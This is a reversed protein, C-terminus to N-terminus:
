YSKYLKALEGEIHARVDARQEPPLQPDAELRTLAAQYASIAAGAEGAAAHAGGLHDFARTSDPFVAAIARFVVLAAALDGGLMLEFAYQDHTDESGVPSAPDERLVARWMEVASDFHGAALEFLPLPTSAAARTARTLTRGAHSLELADDGQFALRLGSDTRVLVGPELAVLRVPANFPRVVFLGDAHATIAFPLGDESTFRGVLRAREAAALVVPAIPTDAGPWNLAAFVTREIEPFLRFGNDSNAMVVVGYGHDLSASADAQFGTDAGNHGFFAAANRELLFVGLASHSEPDVETTMLTAIEPSLKTSRHARARAIELFFMALDTPTTWLGAAAMEPYVFRKGPVVSGDRQHGAAARKLREPPLPQQFTSNQMGLPVLVQEDLIAPYPKGLADMLALQTISIGGGSYRFRSGPKLDVRVAPTNAPPSGDLVQLLTPVPTASASSPYGPFGHVTTGATHSLLQRLTVPAGQTLENDPLKWSRLLENVPVDLKLAGDAVALLVALANVPKSISGAQFLTSDSVSEHTEVDAEGYGKAWVLEYQDFVAISLGPVRLQAMREALTFHVDEGRVQLAPLLAREIQAQLANIADARASRTAEGPTAAPPVATHCAPLILLCALLVRCKM